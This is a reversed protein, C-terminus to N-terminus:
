ELAGSKSTDSISLRKEAVTGFGASEPPLDPPRRLDVPELVSFTWRTIKYLQNNQQIIM